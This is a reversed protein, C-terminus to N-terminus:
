LAKIVVRCIHSLAASFSATDDKRFIRFISFNTTGYIHVNPLISNNWLRPLAM